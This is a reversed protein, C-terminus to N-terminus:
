NNVKTIKLEKQYHDPGPLGNSVGLNNGEIIIRVSNDKFPDVKNELWRIQVPREYIGRPFVLPNENTVVQYDRGEQLGDGPVVAYTVELSEEVPKSSFYIYYSVVDRRSSNVEIETLENVMIHVFPEDLPEVEEKSCSLFFTLSCLLLTLSKFPNPIM